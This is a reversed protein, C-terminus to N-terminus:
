QSSWIELIYNTWMFYVSIYSLFFLVHCLLSFIFPLYYRSLSILIPVVVFLVKIVFKKHDNKFKTNMQIQTMEVSTMRLGSIDNFFANYVLSRWKHLYDIKSMCIMTRSAINYLTYCKHLHFHQAILNFDFRWISFFSKIQNQITLNRKEHTYFEQAERALFDHPM